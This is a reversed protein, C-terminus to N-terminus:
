EGRGPYWIENFGEDSVPTVLSSEMSRLVHEPITKGPRDLRRAWEDDNPKDLVVAVRRYGPFRRLISARKKRGLNTQDWVVNLGYRVAMDAAADVRRKAEDICDSFVQDYTADRDLAMQEIVDDTSLVVSVEGDNLKALNNRIWTSKGSGPLGVMVYLTPM